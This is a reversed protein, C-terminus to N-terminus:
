IHIFLIVHFLMLNCILFSIYNILLCKKGQMVDGVSGQVVKQNENENYNNMNISQKEDETYDIMILKRKKKEEEKGDRAFILDKNINKSVIKM